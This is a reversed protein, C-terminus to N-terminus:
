KSQNIIFESCRKARDKMTRIQHAVNGTTVRDCLEYIHDFWGVCLRSLEKNEEILEKSQENSFEQMLQVCYGLSVYIGDEQITRKGIDEVKKYYEEAKM